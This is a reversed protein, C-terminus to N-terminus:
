CSRWSCNKQVVIVVVTVVVVFSSIKCVPLAEVAYFGFTRMVQAHFAYVEAYIRGMNHKRLVVLEAYSKQQAFTEQENLRPGRCLGRCVHM